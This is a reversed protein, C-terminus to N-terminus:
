RLSPIYICIYRDIRLIFALYFPLISHWISHRFLIDSTSHWLSHWISHWSSHWFLHWISHWLFQWFLHWPPHWIPHWFLLHLIKHWLLIDSLIGSYFILFCIGYTSGFSIDSVIVFYHWPPSWEFCLLEPPWIWRSVHLDLWHSSCSGRSRRCPHELRVM